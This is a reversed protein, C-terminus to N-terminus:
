VYAQEIPRYDQSQPAKKVSASAAHQGAAANSRLLRKHRLVLGALFTLIVLGIAAVCLSVLLHPSYAPPSVLGSIAVTSAQQYPGEGSHTPRLPTSQTAANSNSRTAKDATYMLFDDSLATDQDNDKFIHENAYYYDDSPFEGDTLEFQDYDYYAPQTHNTPRFTPAARLLGSLLLLVLGLQALM